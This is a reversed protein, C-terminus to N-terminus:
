IARYETEGKEKGKSMCSFWMDDEKEKGHVYVKEVSEESIQVVQKMKLFSASMFTKFVIDM